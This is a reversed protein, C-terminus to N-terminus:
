YLCYQMKEIEFSLDNMEQLHNISNNLNKNFGSWNSNIQPIIKHRTFNRDFCIDNHYIYLIKVQRNM